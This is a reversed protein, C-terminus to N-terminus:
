FPLLESGSSIKVENCPRKRLYSVLVTIYIFIFFVSLLLLFLITLTITKRILQHNKTAQVSLEQPTIAVQEQQVSAQSSEQPKIVNLPKVVAIFKYGKKPFTAIFQPQRADDNFAKRLKTILKSVANDSVIRGLWVKEILRDKSIIQDVNQCFYGLLEVMMPELQQSNNELTLTQQQDCFIFEAIQWRM